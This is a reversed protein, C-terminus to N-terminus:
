FKVVGMKWLAILTLLGLCYGTLAINHCKDTYNTVDQNFRTDTMKTKFIKFIPFGIKMLTPIIVYIFILSIGVWYLTLRM